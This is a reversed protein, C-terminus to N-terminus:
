GSLPVFPWVLPVIVMIVIFLLVNLWIGVKSFDSFKYSGVGYVLANAQHGIPTIFTTSAAIAVAIMFPYPEIGLGVAISIGIPAMLVAAAANSMVETLLTTVIVLCALALLPGSDNTLNLIHAAIWDATGLHDQDMAIGLPMMFAILFIVRWEVDRYMEQPRVCGTLTMLLVGMFAALSIHFVGFAAMLVSFTMIALALPAKGPRRPAHELRNVVLFDRSEALKIIASIPGQVLMVDGVELPVSSYNDQFSRERRRLALVLVGFRRRIDSFKISRGLLTANPAIAVEAMEFGESEKKTGELSFKRKAKIDFPAVDGMDVIKKLNGEVILHDDPEIVTDPYPVILRQSGAVERVVQLVTLGYEDRLKSSEITKGILSSKDKVIVETIYDELEYDSAIDGRDTHRDPLLHRGVFAMYIIAVLFVVIGTPAFDFMKFGEFGRAELATSVLLNPPTGILTCIGGLLSGFSLPILMKSAPYGSKKAVAFIATILIATAGINNMFASMVGVTLMVAITMFFPSSGGVRLLVISMLDAIGTRVLGSSLIFMAIVTIVAPNSFGSFGEQVTIAGSLILTLAVGMAVIDARIRESAFLLLAIAILSLLLYHEM